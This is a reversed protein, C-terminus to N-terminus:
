ERIRQNSEIETATDFYVRQFDVTKRRLMVIINDFSRIFTINCNKKEPLFNLLRYVKVTNECLIAIIEKAM